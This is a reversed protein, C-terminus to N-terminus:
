RISAIAGTEGRPDDHKGPASAFAKILVDLRQAAQGPRLRKGRELTALGHLAGWLVEAYTEEGAVRVLSGFADRLPPPTEDSAFALSTQEAFMADYVAPNRRAFDLYTEALARAGVTEHLAAALELFGDVAVAAVIADKGAFHSYLVPQSYEVRDALRRTTVADWGEQEALERATRLILARRDARERRRRDSTAM